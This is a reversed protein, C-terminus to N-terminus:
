GPRAPEGPRQQARLNAMIDTYNPCQRAVFTVKYKGDPIRPSVSAFWWVPHPSGEPTTVPQPQAQARDLAAASNPQLSTLCIALAFCSLLFARIARRMLPHCNTRRFPGRGDM